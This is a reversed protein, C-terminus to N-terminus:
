AAGRGLNFAESALFGSAGILVLAIVVIKVRAGIGGGGGTGFVDGATKKLIIIQFLAELGVMVLAIQGALTALGLLMSLFSTGWQNAKAELGGFQAIVAITTLM